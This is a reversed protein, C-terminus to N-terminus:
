FLEVDGTDQPAPPPTKPITRDVEQVDEKNLLRMQVRGNTPWFRIRRGNEGGLSESVIPIGEGNLYDRAFASNMRGIEYRSEIVNAGGFLKAQLNHRAAGMKMLENILLEMAYSGHSLNGGAEDDRGGPLLFHNMGGIQSSDDWICAAVCSGLVTGLVAEPRNSVSYEGRVVGVVNSSSPQSSGTM